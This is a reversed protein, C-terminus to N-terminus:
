LIDRDKLVPFKERFHTLKDMNIYATIFSEKSDPCQSLVHGYPDIFQTGGTYNCTNDTGVRNVGCVYCQNEIARAKLLTNWAEIRTTPWNAVYIICDYDEHNRSWVPFRLDYCINLCFRVGRFPVIVRDTGPKYQKDEGAYSFLHRKDYFTVTDDPQVFYLRNRYDGHGCDTAVSGVIAADHLTAMYKMWELTAADGEAIGSPSTAFGTSFMEPLIYVDSGTAATILQEANNRNVAGDNWAIDTQLLTLKM